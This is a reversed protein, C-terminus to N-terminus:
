VERKRLIIEWKAPINLEPDTGLKLPLVEPFKVNLALLVSFVYILIKNSFM